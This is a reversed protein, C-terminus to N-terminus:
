LGGLSSLIEQEKEQVISNMLIDIRLDVRERLLVSECIFGSSISSDEKLDVKQEKLISLLKKDNPSCIILDISILKSARQLLHLYFDKKEKEDLATFYKLTGHSVSVMVSNQAELVLNKSKSKAAGLMSTELLEKEKELLALQMNKFITIRSKSEKELELFENSKHSIEEEALLTAHHQVKQSLVEFSM